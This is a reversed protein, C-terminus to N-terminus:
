KRNDHRFKETRWGHIESELGSNLINRNEFEFRSKPFAHADVTLSDKSCAFFCPQSIGHYGGATQIVINRDNGSITVKSVKGVMKSQDHFRTFQCLFGDFGKLRFKPLDDFFQIGDELFYGGQYVHDLPRFHLVQGAIEHGFSISESLLFAIQLHFTLFNLHFDVVATREDDIFGNETLVENLSAPFARFPLLLECYPHFHRIPHSEFGRHWKQWVRKGLSCM